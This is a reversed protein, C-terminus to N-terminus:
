MNRTVATTYFTETRTKLGFSSQLTLAIRVGSSMSNQLLTLTFNTVSVTSLTLPGEDVGGRSVHLQGGSVSFAVTSTAGTADMDVLTLQGPTSGFTSQGLNISSAQRVEYLIRQLASSASTSVAKALRFDAYSKTLSSIGDVLFITVAALLALYIIMEVLSFGRRKNPNTAM